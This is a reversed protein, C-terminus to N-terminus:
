FLFDKEKLQLKKLMAYQTENKGSTNKQYRAKKTNRLLLENVDYAQIKVYDAGFKAAESIMKKALSMKGNHNVGAEAIIQTKM